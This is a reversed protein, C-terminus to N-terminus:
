KILLSRGSYAVAFMVILGVVTVLWYFMVPYNFRKWVRGLRMIIYVYFMIFPLMVFAFIEYSLAFLVFICVMASKWITILEKKPYQDDWEQTEEDIRELYYAMNKFNIMFGVHVKEKQRLEEDLDDGWNTAMKKGENCLRWANYM